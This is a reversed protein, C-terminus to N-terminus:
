STLQVMRAHTRAHKRIRSPLCTGTGPLAIAFALVFVLLAPLRTLLVLSVCTAILLGALGDGDIPSFEAAMLLVDRHATRSQAWRSRADRLLASASPGSCQVFLNQVDDLKKVTKDSIEM